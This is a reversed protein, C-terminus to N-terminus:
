EVGLPWAYIALIVFFMWYTPAVAAMLYTISLWVVRLRGDVINRACFWQGAAMGLAFIVGPMSFTIWDSHGGVTKARAVTAAAAIVLGALAGWFTSAVWRTESALFAFHKKQLAGLATAVGLALLWPVFWALMGMLVVVQGLLTLGALALLRVLHVPGDGRLLRAGAM